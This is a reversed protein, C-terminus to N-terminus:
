APVISLRRLASFLRANCGNQSMVRCRGLGTSYFNQQLYIANEEAAHTSILGELSQSTSSERRGGHIPNSAACLIMKHGDGNIPIRLLFIGYFYRAKSRVGGMKSDGDLMKSIEGELKQISSNACKRM